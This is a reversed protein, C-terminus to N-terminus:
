NVHFSWLSNSEFGTIKEEEAEETNKVREIPVSEYTLSQFSLLEQLAALNKVGNTNLTGTKM